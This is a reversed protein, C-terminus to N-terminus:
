EWLMCCKKMPWICWVLTLLLMTKCSEQHSTTHFSTGFDFVWDDDVSNHVALLLTDHEEETVATAVDNETKKLNKCNRKFHGVWRAM